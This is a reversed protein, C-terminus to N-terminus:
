GEQKGLAIKGAANLVMAAFPLAAFAIIVGTIVNQALADGGGLYIWTSPSLFVTNVFAILATATAFVRDGALASIVAFGIAIASLVIGFPLFVAILACVLAAIGFGKAM